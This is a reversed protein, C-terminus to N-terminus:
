LRYGLRLEFRNQDYNLDDETSDNRTYAAVAEGYLQWKLDMRAEAEIEWLLDKRVPQQRHYRQSQYGTAVSVEVPRQWWQLRRSWELSLQEVKADFSDDSASTDRGHYALLLHHNLGDLLYYFRLNLVPGSSSREPQLDFDRRSYGTAGYFFLHDSIMASLNPTFQAITLYDSGDLYAKATYGEMGLSVNDLDYSANGMLLHTLLNFETLEQYRTSSGNYHASFNWGNDAQGSVGVVLDANISQDGKRSVVDSESLVLNSESVWAASADVEPTFTAAVSGTSASLLLTTIWWPGYGRTRFRPVAPSDM